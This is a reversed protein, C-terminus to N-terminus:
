RPAPGSGPMPGNAGKATVLVALDQLTNLSFRALDRDSIRISYRKELAQVLAAADVSDLGLEKGFLQADPAIRDNPGPLRLASVVLESLEQLLEAM